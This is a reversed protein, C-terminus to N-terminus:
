EATEGSVFRPDALLQALLDNVTEQLECIRTFEHETWGEPSPEEMQVIICITGLAEDQLRGMIFEDMGELEMGTLILTYLLVEKEAIVATVAVMTSDEMEHREIVVADAFELPYLLEAYQTQILLGDPTVVPAWNAEETLAEARAPCASGACLAMALVLAWAALCRIISPTHM